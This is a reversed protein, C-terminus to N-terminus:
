LRGAALRGQTTPRGACNRRRNHSCRGRARGRWGRPQLIIASPQEGAFQSPPGRWQRSRPFPAGLMASNVRDCLPSRGVSAAWVSSGYACVMAPAAEATIRAMEPFFAPGDDLRAFRRSRSRPRPLAAKSQSRTGREGDRVRGHLKGQGIAHFVQEPSFGIDRHPHYSGFLASRTQASATGSRGDARSAM